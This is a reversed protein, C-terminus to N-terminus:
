AEDSTRSAEASAYCGLLDRASVVGVLRGSDEVLVHRVYREMMQTAVDAVTASADCWVLDRHAIDSARTTALDLRDAVARALDRESIVGEVTDPDGVVLAGVDGVALADAVDYLSAASPVRIITDNALAAIGLGFSDALDTM